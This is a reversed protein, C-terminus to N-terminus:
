TLLPADWAATRSSWGSKSRSTSGNACLRSSRGARDSIFTLGRRMMWRARKRMLATCRESQMWSGNASPPFAAEIEVFQRRAHALCKCVVTEFESTWNAAQADGMQLPPLLGRARSRLLDDINEGAHKRGSAYLVVRHGDVQSVIGTTQLGRRAHEQLRKNEKLCSLIKVRTDDGYLVQGQAALARLHLYVPLVADAVAECRAFQVSAPLPVGCATQMKALRHFPLGASYKAVAIAVDASAAYKQAPVAEPLRATFREQCASCRLVAQEFRTAGVLPQGELRILIAPSRTDYLHGRCPAAPCPAGPKLHAEQCSVVVAGTYRAAPLRGHGRRKTPSSAQQAADKNETAPATSTAQRASEDDQKDPLPRTPRADSGPGFLMRKLRAISTNKQEVVRILTLLLRLLRSILRRDEAGLEGAELRAILAEIESPNTSSPSDRETM